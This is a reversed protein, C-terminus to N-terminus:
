SEREPSIRAVSAVVASASRMRCMSATHPACSVPYCNWNGRRVGSKDRAVTRVPCVSEVARVSRAPRGAYRHTRRDEGIEFCVDADLVYSAVVLLSPSRRGAKSPSAQQPCSVLSRFHRPVVPTRTCIPPGRVAESTSSLNTFVIPDSTGRVSLILGTVSQGSIVSSSSSNSTIAIGITTSPRSPCNSTVPEHIFPQRLLSKTTATAEANECHTILQSRNSVPRSQDSASRAPRSHILSQRPSM